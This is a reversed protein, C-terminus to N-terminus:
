SIQRGPNRFWVYLYFIPIVYEMLIFIPHAALYDSYPSEFYLTNLIKIMLTSVPWLLSAFLFLSSSFKSWKQQSRLLLPPVVILAIWGATTMAQVFAIPKEARSFNPVFFFYNRFSIVVFFLFVSTTLSFWFLSVKFSKDQEIANINM